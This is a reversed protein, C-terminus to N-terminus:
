CDGRRDQRNREKGERGKREKKKKKERNLQLFMLLPESFAFVSNSFRPMPKLTRLKLTLLRVM